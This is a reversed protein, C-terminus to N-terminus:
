GVSKRTTHFNAHNVGSETMQGHLPYASTDISLPESCNTTAILFLFLSPPMWTIYECNALQRAGYLYTAMITVKITNKRKSADDRTQQKNM